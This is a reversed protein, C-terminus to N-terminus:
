GSQKDPAAGANRLKDDTCESNIHDATLQQDWGQLWRVLERVRERAANPGHRPMAASRDIFDAFRPRIALRVVQEVRRIWDDIAPYDSPVPRGAEVFRSGERALSALRDKVDASEARRALIVAKEAAHREGQQAFADNLRRVETTLKAIKGSLENKEAAHAKEAEQEMKAPARVLFFLYVLIFAAVTAGTGYMIKQLESAARPADALLLLCSVLIVSTISGVALKAVSLGFFKCADRFAHAAARRWYRPV